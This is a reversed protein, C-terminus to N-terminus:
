RIIDNQVRWEELDIWPIFAFEAKKTRFDDRGVKKLKTFCGFVGQPINVSVDFHTLPSIPVIKRQQLLVNREMDYVGFTWYDYAGNYMFRILYEKRLLIVRSYSDNMDPVQIYEIMIIM